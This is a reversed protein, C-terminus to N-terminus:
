NSFSVCSISKNSCQRKTTIAIVFFLFFDGYLRVKLPELVFASILFTIFISLLWESAIASGFNYGYLLVMVISLASLLVCIAYGVYICYWPLHCGPEQKNDNVAQVKVTLNLFIWFSFLSYLNGIM